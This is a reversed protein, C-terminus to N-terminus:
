FIIFANGQIPKKKQAKFIVPSAVTMFGEGARTMFLRQALWETLEPTKIDTEKKMVHKAKRNFHFRLKNFQWLELPLEGQRTSQHGRLLGRAM